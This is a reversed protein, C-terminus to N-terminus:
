GHARCSLCQYYFSYADFGIDRSETNRRAQRSAGTCNRSQYYIGEVSTGYNAYSRVRGITTIGYCGEPAPGVGVRQGTYGIGQFQCFNGSPCPAALVGGDDARAATAQVDTSSSAHAPAVGAVVLAWLSLAFLILRKKSM